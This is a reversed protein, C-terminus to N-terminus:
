TKPRYTDRKDVYDRRDAGKWGLSTDTLPIMDLAVPEPEGNLTM